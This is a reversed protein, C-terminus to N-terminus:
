ADSHFRYETIQRSVGGPRLICPPFGPQNPGDPFRQPELCVGARPGYRRGGLGPTGPPIKHGDYVQLGPETTWVDLTLGSGLATLTAVRRLSGDHGRLVLNLDINEPVLAPQRLDAGTGSVPAVEGSPVGEADVPTFADAAVELRHHAITEAGTLNFYHHPVLNVPTSADSFAELTIRLALGPLLEHRCIAVLRGPYGMDGDPSVLGLTSSTGDADLIRWPRVGFGQPGGHLHHRGENPVLDHRTGDLIFRAHAIRNAYRGVIAGFYQGHASYADLTDCGLLVQVSGNRGPVTLSRTTAGWTIIRAGFGQEGDLAIEQVVDGDQMGFPRVNM